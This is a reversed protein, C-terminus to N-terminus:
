ANSSKPIVHYRPHINLIEVKGGLLTVSGAHRDDGSGSYEFGYVRRLCLQGAEDRAPRISLGAVSDDLFQLGEDACAQRAARLGAERARLTDLWFWILAAIAAIASIEILEM